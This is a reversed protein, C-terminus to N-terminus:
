GLSPSDAALSLAIRIVLSSSQSKVVRKEALIFLKDYLYLASQSLVSSFGAVVLNGLADAAISHYTFESPSM